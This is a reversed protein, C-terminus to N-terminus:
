GVDVVIVRKCVGVQPAALEVGSAADMTALMRCALRRVRRSVRPIAQAKSLLIPDPIAAIELAAM